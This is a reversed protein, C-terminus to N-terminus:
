KRYKELLRGIEPFRIVTRYKVHRLASIVFHKLSSPPSWDFRIMNLHVPQVWSTNQLSQDETGELLPFFWEKEPWVYDVPWTWCGNEIYLDRLQDGLVGDTPIPLTPQGLRHLHRQMLLVSKDSVYGTVWIRYGLRHQLKEIARFVQIHDEHGYEGWPNHTVVDRVGKLREELLLCLRGFNTKYAASVAGHLNFPLKLPMLGEAVESPKPWTAHNFMVAEVLDLNEVNTMPLQSIARRRGDSFKAQGPLDCYCLIVSDASKLLSSAWLVEDDPHAMVITCGHMIKPHPSEGFYNQTTWDEIM